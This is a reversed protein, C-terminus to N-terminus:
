LRAFGYYTKLFSTHPFLGENAVGSCLHELDASSTNRVADHSDISIVDILM